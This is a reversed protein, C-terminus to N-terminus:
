QEVDGIMAIIMALDLRLVANCAVPAVVRCHLDVIFGTEARPTGLLFFFLRRM